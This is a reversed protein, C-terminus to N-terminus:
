SAPTDTDATRLAHRGRACWAAVRARAAADTAPERLAEALELLAGLLTARGDPEHAAVAEELGSKAVLGGLEILRRTRSRRQM